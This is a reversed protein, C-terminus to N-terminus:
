FNGSHLVVNYDGKQLWAFKLRRTEDLHKGTWREEITNRDIINACLFMGLVMAIIGSALMPFAYPAALKGEKTFHHEWPSFLTSIGAFIIVSLQLLTGIVAVAWLEGNSTQQGKINLAVNPVSRDLVTDNAYIHDTNRPHFYDMWGSPIWGSPIWYLHENLYLRLEIPLVNMTSIWSKPILHTRINKKTLINKRVAEDFDYIDIKQKEDLLSDLEMGQIRESAASSVSRTEESSEVEHDRGSSTVYVLQMIDAKGLVRVIGSGNWLEM